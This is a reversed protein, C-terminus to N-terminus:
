RFRLINVSQRRRNGRRGAHRQARSKTDGAISRNCGTRNNRLSGRRAPVVRCSGAGTRNEECDKADVSAERTAYYAGEMGLRLKENANWGYGSFIRNALDGWGCTLDYGSFIRNALNGWGRSLYNMETLDNM